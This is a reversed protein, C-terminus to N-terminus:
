YRALSLCLARLPQSKGYEKSVPAIGGAQVGKIGNFRFDFVRRVAAPGAEEEVAGPAENDFVPRCLFFHMSIVSWPSYIQLAGEGCRVGGIFQLGVSVKLTRLTMPKGLLGHWLLYNERRRLPWRTVSGALAGEFLVWSVLEQRRCGAEGAVFPCSCRARHGIKWKIPWLLM